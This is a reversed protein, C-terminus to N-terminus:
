RCPRVWCGGQPAVRVDVRGVAFAIRSTNSSVRVAAPPESLVQITSLAKLSTPQMLWAASAQVNVEFARRDAVVDVPELRGPEDPPLGDQAPIGM